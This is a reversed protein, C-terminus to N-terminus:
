TVPESDAPQTNLAGICNPSCSTAEYGDCYIFHREGVLDLNRHPVISRMLTLSVDNALVVAGSAGLAIDDFSHSSLALLRIM